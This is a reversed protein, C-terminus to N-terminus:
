DRGQTTDLDSSEQRERWSCVMTQLEFMEISPDTRYRDLWKNSMQWYRAADVTGGVLDKLQDLSVLFGRIFGAGDVVVAYFPILGFAECAQVAKNFGDSPLRVCVKETGDYRSRSKVSIGMKIGDPSRAILDIGVHDVRACEYGYKSLWYLLLGEAFDGTIKSHRSSKHMEM